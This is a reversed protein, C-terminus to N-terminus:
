AAANARSGRPTFDEPVAPEAFRVANKKGSRLRELVLFGYAAICLSAHHHFGRWNRGEYHGLGLEQKLEEYDREIRWRSMVINIMAQWGLEVPLNSFWYHAPEDADEPWEIILWEEAHPQDKHAARVRVRAFRSQLPKATGQRWTVQRWSRAPLEEALAGLAIPQHNEDRQVRCRPRGRVSEVPTAPQYDGWWVKTSSRVGVAYQLGREALGARWATEGGYAADALVPGKSYGAALAADIQSLAIATKTAFRVEDPVGAKRCRDEDDTWEQPLYLRFGIPMSGQDCAISLTVAVRCNDQKGTQGCYQHAVGVSHKGKKPFGTDDVIWCVGAGSQTLPGLVQGTCAAILAEDSWTADAVLHHMSQHASRVHQPHVRAAMPEVSKRGGPLLLGKMYWRAPQERDVHQLAEVMSETYREFRAELRSGM